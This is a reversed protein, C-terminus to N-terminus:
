ITLENRKSERNIFPKGEDSKENLYVTKMNKPCEFQNLINM